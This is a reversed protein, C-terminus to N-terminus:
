SPSREVLFKDYSWSEYSFVGSGAFRPGCNRCDDVKGATGLFGNFMGLGNLLGPPM